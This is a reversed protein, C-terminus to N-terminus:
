NRTRLYKRILVYNIGILIPMYFIKAVMIQADFCNICLKMLAFDALFSILYILCIKFLTYMKFKTKAKTYVKFFKLILLGVPSTFLIAPIISLTYSHIKIGFFVYETRDFIM